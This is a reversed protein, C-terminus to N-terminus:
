TGHVSSRQDTAFSPLQNRCDIPCPYYTVSGHSLTGAATAEEVAMGCVPDIAM